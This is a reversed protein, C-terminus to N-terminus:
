VGRSVVKFAGKSVKQCRSVGRFLVQGGQVGVQAANLNWPCGMSMGHVGRPCGIFVVPFVRSV